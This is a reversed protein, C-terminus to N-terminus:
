KLYSSQINPRKGYIDMPIGKKFTHDFDVANLDGAALMFDHFTKAPPYKM